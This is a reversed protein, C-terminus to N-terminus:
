PPKGYRYNMALQIARYDGGKALKFLESWLFEDSLGAKTMDEILNLEHARSKRGAGKRAGGNNKRGDPM